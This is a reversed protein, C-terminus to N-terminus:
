QRAFDGEKIDGKLIHDNFVNFAEDIQKLCEDMSEGEVTIDLTEYKFKYGYYNSLNFKRSVQM